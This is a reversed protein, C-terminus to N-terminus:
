PSREKAASGRLLPMAVAALLVLAGTYRVIPNLAEDATVALDTYSYTVWAGGLLVLGVVAALYAAQRRSGWAFALAFALVLAFPLVSWLGRDFLVEVSLRLADLARDASGAGGVDSPAEGGIGHSRYWLRWPVAAVVVAVTVVALPPWSRRRKPWAAAFAVVLAVAAFLLGERKTLAAGAFLVAVPGLRWSHGDELWLALLLVGVVFFLDVLVDSQPAMLAEGFRPVTLVLLLSPWLAWAPVHRALCGVVAATGGLVLCWFQLHLTVVDASGMAHFAAADLIPVLPPYTPGPSVTFIQQDLGGFFYIAKAKPIWFAWADFAQVSQLRASRFFAEFLLGVLAIGAATVLLSTTTAWPSGAARRPLPMGRWLGIAACLWTGFVLTAIVQWGGFPVGFVLLETWVIGFAAVGVLYGLGCLHAVDSWRPMGRVAWVFATGLVAYGINLALLGGIAGPSV